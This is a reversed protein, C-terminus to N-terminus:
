RHSVMPNPLSIGAVISRFVEASVQGSTFEAAASEMSVYLDWEAEDLPPELEDAHRLIWSAYDRPSIIGGLFRNNRSLFDTSEM